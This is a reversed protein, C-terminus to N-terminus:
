PRQRITSALTSSSGSGAASASRRRPTTRTAVFYGRIAAPYKSRVPRWASITSTLPETSSAGSVPRTSAITSRVAVPVVSRSFPSTTRSSIATAVARSIALGTACLSLAAAMSSTTSRSRPASLAERDARRPGAPAAARHARERGAGLRDGLGHALDDLLHAAAAVDRQAAVDLAEVADAAGRRTAARPSALGRQRREVRRHARAELHRDGVDAGDGLRAEAGVDLDRQRLALRTVSRSTGTRRAAM